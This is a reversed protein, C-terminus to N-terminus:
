RVRRCVAIWELPAPTPIREFFNILKVHFEPFIDYLKISIWYQIWFHNLVPRLSIVDFGNAAMESNFEAKTYTVDYVPLANETDHTGKSDLRNRTFKDVVDFILIGDMKLKSRIERYIRRRDAQHFHRIFRFSYVMDFQDPLIENSRLEFANGHIISWNGNKKVKKLRAEALKVMERSFELMYGNNVYTLDVALRAPGPAIELLSAPSYRDLASQIARVQSTHLLKQWSLVFRNRIYKEAVDPDQYLGSVAYEDRALKKDFNDEM